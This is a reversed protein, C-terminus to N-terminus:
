SSMKPILMLGSQGIYLAARTWKISELGNSISFTDCAMLFAKLSIFFRINTSVAIM